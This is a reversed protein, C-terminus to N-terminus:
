LSPTHRGLFKNKNKNNNKGYKYNLLAKQMSQPINIKKWYHGVVM